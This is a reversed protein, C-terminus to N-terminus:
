FTSKKCSMLHFASERKLRMQTVKQTQKPSLPCNLSSYSVSLLHIHINTYAGMWLKYKMHSYLRLFHIFSLSSVLLLKYLPILMKDGLGLLLFDGEPGAPLKVIM